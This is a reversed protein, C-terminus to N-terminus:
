KLKYTGDPLRERHVDHCSKCSGGMKGMASRVGDANGAEAAAALDKAAAMGDKSWKVAMDDNRDAWFKDTGELAEALMKAHGSVEGFTNAQVLKRIAGQHEGVKKMKATLEKEDMAMIVTAFIAAGSLALLLSRTM